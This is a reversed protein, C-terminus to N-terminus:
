RVTTMGVRQNGALDEVTVKITEGKEAGSVRVEYYYFRPAYRSGDELLEGLTVNESLATKSFDIPENTEFRLVMGNVEPPVTFVPPTTDTPQPERIPESTPTIKEQISGLKQEIRKVTDSTETSVCRKGTRIDFLDGQACSILPNVRGTETQEAEDSSVVADTLLLNAQARSLEGFYGSVPAIGYKSQFCKVGSLTLLGFYGTPSVPLCGESALLDQLASVDTGSM